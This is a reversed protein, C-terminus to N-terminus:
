ESFEYYLGSPTGRTGYIIGGRRDLRKVLDPVSVTEDTFQIREVNQLLDIGNEAYVVAVVDDHSETFEMFRGTITNHGVHSSVDSGRVFDATAFPIDYEVTDFGAGGDIITGDGLWSHFRAEYNPIYPRLNAEGRMRKEPEPSFQSRYWATGFQGTELGFVLLTFDEQRDTLAERESSSSIHYSYRPEWKLVTSSGVVETEVAQPRYIGTVRRLLDHRVVFVVYAQPGNPDSVIIESKQEDFNNISNNQIRLEKQTAMLRPITTTATYVADDVYCEKAHLVSCLEDVVPRSVSEITHFEGTKTVAVITVPLTQQYLLYGLGAALVLTISSLVLLIIKQAASV